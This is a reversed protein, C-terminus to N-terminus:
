ATQEITHSAIRTSLLTTKSRPSRSYYAADGKYPCYTENDTRAIVNGGALVRV